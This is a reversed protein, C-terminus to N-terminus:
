PVAAKIWRYNHLSSTNVIYSNTPTHNVLDKTRSTLLHEQKKPVVRTSNCHSNICDHQMNVTCVID